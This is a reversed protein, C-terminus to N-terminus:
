EYAVWEVLCDAYDSPLRYNGFGMDVNSDYKFSSTGGAGDITRYGSSYRISATKFSGKLDSLVVMSDGLEARNSRIVAVITSARFNLNYVNFYFNVAERGDMRTFDVSTSSSYCTGTAFRKGQWIDGVKNILGTLKETNNASMGKSNLRLCLTNKLSYIENYLSLSFDVAENLSASSPLESIAM